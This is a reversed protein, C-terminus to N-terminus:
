HVKKPKPISSCDMSKGQRGKESVLLVSLENMKDLYNIKSNAVRVQSEGSEELFFDGAISLLEVYNVIDGYVSERLHSQNISGLITAMGEAFDALFDLGYKIKGMNRTNEESYDRMIITLNKTGEEIEKKIKKQYGYSM